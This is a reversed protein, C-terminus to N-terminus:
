LVSSIFRISYANNDLTIKHLFIICLIPSICLSFVCCRLMFLLSFYASCFLSFFSNKNKHKQCQNISVKLEGRKETETNETANIAMRRSTIKETVRRYLMAMTKKSTIEEREVKLM